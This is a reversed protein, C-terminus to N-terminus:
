RAAAAGLRLQLTVDALLAAADLPCQLLADARVRHRLQDLFGGTSMAIIPIARTAPDRKLVDIAAIGNLRPLMIDIVVLDPWGTRAMEVASEGDGTLAVEHGADHLVHAVREQSDSDHEVVLIRSV